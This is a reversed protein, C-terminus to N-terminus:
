KLCLCCPYIKGTEWVYKQKGRILNGCLHNLKVSFFIGSEMISSDHARWTVLTFKRGAIKKRYNLKRSLLLISAFVLYIWDNCCYSCFSKVLPLSCKNQLISFMDKKVQIKEKLQQLQTFYGNHYLRLPHDLLGSSPMQALGSLHPRSAGTYM